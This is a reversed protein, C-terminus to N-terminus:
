ARSFNKLFLEAVPHHTPHLVNLLESVSHWRVEALDDGAHVGGFVFKATFVATLIKHTSRRYRHDNIRISGLYRLEDIEIDGAEEKAERRAAAELSADVPDVFGGPFVWDNSNPKRGILVADGNENRIVMDVTQFSTPYGQQTAAYIAGARFDESARPEKVM